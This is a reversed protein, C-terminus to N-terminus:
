QHHIMYLIQGSKKSMWVEATGGPCPQNGGICHLTGTVIWTGDKLTVKFPHESAIITKGYVPALVAEGVAIATEENPVFGDKPVFSPLAKTQARGMMLLLTFLLTLLLTKM